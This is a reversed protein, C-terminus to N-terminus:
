IEEKQALKCLNHVAKSLFAFRQAEDIGYKNLVYPGEKIVPNDAHPKINFHKGNRVIIYDTNGKKGTLIDANESVLKKSIKDYVPVSLTTAKTLVISTKEDQGTYTYQEEGNHEIWGKREGGAPEDNEYACTVIPMKNPTGSFKRNFADPLGVGIQGLGGISMFTATEASIMWPTLIDGERVPWPYEGRVRKGAEARIKRALAHPLKRSELLSLVRDTGPLHRLSVKNKMNEAPQSNNGTQSSSIVM